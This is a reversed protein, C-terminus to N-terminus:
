FRIDTGTKDPDALEEPASARHRKALAYVFGHASGLLSDRIMNDADLLEARALMREFTHIFNNSHRARIPTGYFMALQRDPPLRTHSELIRRSFIEPDNGAKLSFLESFEEATVNGEADSGQSSIFLM